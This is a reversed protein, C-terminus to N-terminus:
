QFSTMALRNLLSNWIKKRHSKSFPKIISSITFILFSHRIKRRLELSKYRAEGLNMEWSRQFFVSTLFVVDYCRWLEVNSCRWLEVNLCRWIEVNLCRWIEVSIQKLLISNWKLMSTRRQKLTLTTEVQIQRSPSSRYKNPPWLDPEFKSKFSKVTEPRKKGRITISWEHTSWIWFYVELSKPDFLWLVFKSKLGKVMIAHYSWKKEGMILISWLHKSWSGLLVAILKPTSLDFTLTM